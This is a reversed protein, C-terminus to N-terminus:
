FQGTSLLVLTCAEETQIGAERLRQTVAPHETGPNFIVRGPRARIIEETLGELVHPNVYLTVTDVPPPVGNISPYVPLGPLRVAKPTVPLVTHGKSQLLKIAKHSYRQPDDSAGIVVVRQSIKSIGPVKTREHLNNLNRTRKAPQKFLQYGRKCQWVM